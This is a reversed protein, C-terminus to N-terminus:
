EPPTADTVYVPLEAAEVGDILLAFHFDGPAPFVLGDLIFIAIFKMPRGQPNLPFIIRQHADDFILENDDNMVRVSVTHELGDSLRAELQAVLYSTRLPINVVAEPTVGPPRRVNINDFTGAITLRNEAAVAYEALLFTRVLM